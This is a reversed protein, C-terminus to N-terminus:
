SRTWSFEAALSVHDSACVGKLPFGGGFDETRHPALLGSIDCIQNHPPIYFIYDSFRQALSM